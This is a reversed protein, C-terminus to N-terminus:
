SAKGSMHVSPVWAFGEDDLIVCERLGHGQKDM